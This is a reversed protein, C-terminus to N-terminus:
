TPLHSGGNFQNALGTQRAMRLDSRGKPSGTTILLRYRATGSAFGTRTSARLYM